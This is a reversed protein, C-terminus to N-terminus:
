NTPELLKVGYGMYDGVQLANKTRDDFRPLYRKDGSGLLPLIHGSGDTNIVVAKKGKWTGGLQGERDTFFGAGDTHDVLLPWNSNSVTSLGEILAWQNEGRALMQAPEAMKNDAAAGTKSTGVTFVKENDLYTPILSRLADNSTVIPEEYANKGAPYSDGHDNAYARLGLAIQKGSAMAAAQRGQMMVMAYVPTAIGALMAIIAIVVLLEILTFAAHLRITKM